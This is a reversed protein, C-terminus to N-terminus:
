DRRIGDLELPRPDMLAGQRNFPVFVMGNIKIGRRTVEFLKTFNIGEQPHLRDQGDVMEVLLSGSPSTTFRVPFRIWDCDYGVCGPKLSEAAIAGGAGLKVVINAGQRYGDLYSIEYTRTDTGEWIKTSVGVSPFMYGNRFGIEVSSEIVTTEGCEKRKLGIEYNWTKPQEKENKQKTEM